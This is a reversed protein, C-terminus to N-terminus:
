AHLMFLLERSINKMLPEHACQLGCSLCPLRAGTQASPRRSPTRTYTYVLLLAVLGAVALDCTPRAHRLTYASGPDDRTISILRRM